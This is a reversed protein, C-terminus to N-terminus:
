TKILVLDISRGYTPAHDADQGAEHSVPCSVLLRAAGVQFNDKGDAREKAAMCTGPSNARLVLAPRGSNQTVKFPQFAALHPLAALVTLLRPRMLSRCVALKQNGPSRPFAASPAYGKRCWIEGCTCDM